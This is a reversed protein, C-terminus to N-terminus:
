YNIKEILKGTIALSIATKEFEGTYVPITEIKIAISTVRETYFLLGHISTLLSDADKEHQPQKFCAGFITTFVLLTLAVAAVFKQNTTLNLNGM